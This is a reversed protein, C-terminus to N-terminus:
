IAASPSSCGQWKIMELMNIIRRNEKVDHVRVIDVGKLACLATVALTGELREDVPLDGLAKGIFSKRSAGILLPKKLSKFEELRALIELNDQYRKAFGIGPDLIIKHPNVQRSVAFEMRELFYEILEKIVDEYYPNQQMTAPTGKIHMLVLPADFEAVVDVLHEDFLLGSIDNIIDVGAELAMKAVNARYTDVSIPVQPFNERIIKIVPMVRKLEEEEGVPESGPRTSLGGIDIIDAGNEIMETATKLAEEVRQKRSNEYFSDPTANIIGMILTRGFILKRHWPSEIFNVKKTEFYRKLDNGVAKLGFYPMKELKDVLAKYHKETGLLIVDSEPVKCDVANKHVVADGGLGMMEQKLINAAPSPVRYIKLPIIRCKKKFIPFSAPHANVKNMEAKLFEQSLEILM